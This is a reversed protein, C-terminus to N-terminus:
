EPIVLIRRHPSGGAPPLELVEGDKNLGAPGEYDRPGEAKAESRALLSALATLVLLSPVQCTRIGM